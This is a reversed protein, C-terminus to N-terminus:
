CLPEGSESHNSLETMEDIQAQLKRAAWQNIKWVGYFVAAMCGVPISYGRLLHFLSMPHAARQSVATGTLFVALGPLFPLIYWSWITRLADLQRELARRHLEICTSLGLDAPAPQMSTRRHLQFMVYLTAAIVLGSGVRMLPQPFKWEYFGYAAMVFAGATYERLNRRFIKREFKRMKRRLDEPSIRPPETPQSQWLDQIDPSAPENTM